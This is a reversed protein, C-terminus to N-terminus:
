GGFVNSVPQNQQTRFRNQVMNNQNQARGVGSGLAGLGLNAYPAYNGFIGSTLPTLYSLPNFQGTYAQQGATFPLRGVATATNGSFGLSSGINNFVGTPGFILSAVIPLAANDLFNAFTDQGKTAPITPNTTPNQFLGYQPDYYLDSISKPFNEYDGRQQPFYVPNLGQQRYSTYKDIIAQQEPSYGNFSDLGEGGFTNSVPDFGLNSRPDFGKYIGNEKLMDFLQQRADLNGGGAISDIAGWNLNPYLQRLTQLGAMSTPAPTGTGPGITPTTPTTPAPTVTGTTPDFVGGRSRAPGDYSRGLMAEIPTYGTSAGADPTGSSRRYGSDSMGVFPSATGTPTGVPTNSNPLYDNYLENGFIDPM